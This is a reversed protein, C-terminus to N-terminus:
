PMDEGRSMTIVPRPTTLGIPMPRCANQSDTSALRLPIRGSVLKSVEPSPTRNPPWIVSKSGFSATRGRFLRLTILRSMWSPKAAASRASVSAPIETGATVVSRKPTTNPLSM